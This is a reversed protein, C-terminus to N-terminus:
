FAYMGADLLIIACNIKGYFLSRHLPTYGSETDSVNVNVNRRNILWRILKSRGCSSALHLATRGCGDKVSECCCCLYDLYSRLQSDTVARKTLAAIIQDGHKVSRCERTCDRDDGFTM